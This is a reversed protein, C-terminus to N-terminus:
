PDKPPAYRHSSTMIDIFMAEVRGGSGSSELLPNNNNNNDSYYLGSENNARIPAGDNNDATHAKRKAPAGDGAAKKTADVVQPQPSELILALGHVVVHMVCTTAFTVLVTAKLNAMPDGMEIKYLFLKAGALATAMVDFTVVLWETTRM